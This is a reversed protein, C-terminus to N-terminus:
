GLIKRFNKVNEEIDGGFISSGAVIVNAGSELVTTLNDVTVGGDVEIDKEIGRENLIDRLERVKDLTEPILKQGGYGPRVTMILIMDVLSVYDMLADLGTEPSIAISPKMGAQRIAEITKNMDSVAEAHVTLIDAGADKFTDIYRIPEEIMLHVDFVADPAVKRVAKIVPQGFSINPVFMGDMVDLHIYKVGNKLVLKINREINAFDISLISPSLINMVM